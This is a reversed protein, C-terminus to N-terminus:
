ALSTQLKAFFAKPIHTGWQCVGEWHQENQVEVIPCLKETLQRFTAYPSDEGWQCPVHLEVTGLVNWQKVM